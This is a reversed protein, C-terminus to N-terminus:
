HQSADNPPKGYVITELEIVAHDRGLILHCRLARNAPMRIMARRRKSGRV